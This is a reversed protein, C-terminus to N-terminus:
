AHSGVTEGLASDQITLDSARSIQLAEDLAHALSVHDFIATRIGDLRLTDDLREGGAPLPLNWAPRSRLRRVILNGCDDREYHGDCILGRVVIGGPSSQGAIPVDGYVNRAVGHIM